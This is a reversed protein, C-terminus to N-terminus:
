ASGRLHAAGREIVEFVDPDTSAAHKIVEALDDRGRLSAHGRWGIVNTAIAIAEDKSTAIVCLLGDAYDRLASLQRWVYMRPRAESM